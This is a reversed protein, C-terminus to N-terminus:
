GVTLFQQYLSRARPILSQTKDNELEHDIQAKIADRDVNPSLHSGGEDFVQKMEETTLERTIFDTGFLANLRKISPILTQTVEEFPAVVFKSRWNLLKQYFYIYDGIYESLPKNMMQKLKEPNCQCDLAKYSKCADVPDRLLVVTPVGLQCARIIQAPAHVHTAIKLSDGQSTQFASLYYSNASRPFGEIVIDTKSDVIWAQSWHGKRKLRLINLYLAPHIQLAKKLLRM